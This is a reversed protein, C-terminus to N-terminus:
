KKVEGPPPGRGGPAAARTLATSADVAALRARTEDIPSIKGAAVRKGAVDVTRRALDTLAQALALRHGAILVDHYAAIVDARIALRQAM